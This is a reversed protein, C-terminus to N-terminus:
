KKPEQNKLISLFYENYREGIVSWDYDEAYQIVSEKLINKLKRDRLLEDIKSALRAPNVGDVWFGNKGECILDGDLGQDDKYAIVPLGCANAELVTISGTGQVSPYIFLCSTKMKEYVKEDSDIMGQFSVLHSINLSRSLNELWERHPGDGIVQLSYERGEEKLLSVAKLLHDVNKHENLRGLYVLDFSGTDKNAKKIKKLDLGNPIVMVSHSEAGITILQLKAKESLAVIHSFVRAMLREFIVGGLGIKGWYKYWHKDWVEWWDLVVKPGRRFNAWFAPLLHFYPWQGALVMDYKMLNANLAVKWGYYVAETISRRGDERYLLKKAGVSKYNISDYKIQPEGEWFQLSYWDVTWGLKSLARGVEFLRKQGGGQVYPYPCDYLIALKKEKSGKALSLLQTREFVETLIKETARAVRSWDYKSRVLMLSRAVVDEFNPREHLKILLKALSIPQGPEVLYGTKEDEIIEPMGGVRSSLVPTGCGMSELAALSVAEMLSPIVILDAAQYYPILKFPDINGLKLISINQQNLIENVQDVYKPYQPDESGAFIILFESAHHYNKSIWKIARAFFIIGKTPAWRRPCFIVFKGKDGFLKERLDSKSLPDVPKFSKLDVGNHITYSNEVFNPTLEESPGIIAQYHKLLYALLVKGGLMKKFLLYEGTHNTLVVPFKKSLSKTALWSSSFDHQWVLDPKWDSIKQVVIKKGLVYQAKELFGALLGILGEGSWQSLNYARRGIDILVIPIGDFEKLGSDGRGTWVPKFIVIEHGYSILEKAMFRIHNEVGGVSDDFVLTSLLAIKM